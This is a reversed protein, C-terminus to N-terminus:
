QRWPIPPALTFPIEVLVDVEVPAGRRTAPYFEWKALADEAAQVLRDDAGRVVEVNSVKGAEDIVCALRVKGEVREAVASPLYKPDVKRHVVPPAIPALGVERQTRAAYWMLWSGSYSTLNPMQIAMMYVDRGNFRADPASSVKAAGSGSLTAPPPDVRAIMVPQGPRMAARLTEPASPAAYAQQLLARGPSAPVLASASNGIPDPKTDKPGRVFLDPVTLGKGSGDAAAGEPRVKPGASFAAPSSASPLPAPRDLPNLGVIAVNLPTDMVPLDVPLDAAQVSKSPSGTTGRSPATFPKPPLKSAPLPVAGSEPVVNAALQPANELRKVQAINPREAPPPAFPKPPLRVTRLEGPPVPKADLLPADAALQPTATTPKPPSPPAIFPKPPLPAAHLDAAKIPEAKLEPADPVDVKAAEKRPVDPPTVFPKVPHDPLKIALLNPSELPPAATVEPAPTWVMRNRRSANKPSSVISQKAVLAARLPEHGARARPPTVHPLEQFKYWVLKDEKGAIKQRYESGTAHPLQIAPASTFAVFAASHIVLSVGLPGWQRRERGQERYEGLPM